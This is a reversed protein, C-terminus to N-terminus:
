IALIILGHFVFRPMSKHIVDDGTSGTVDVFSFLLVCLNYLSSLLIFLVSNSIGQLQM